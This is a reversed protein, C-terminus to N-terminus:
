SQLTYRTNSQHSHEFTNCPNISFTIIMTGYCGTRANTHKKYRRQELRCSLHLQLMCYFVSYVDSTFLDLAALALRLQFLQLLLCKHAMVGDIIVSDRLFIQLIFTFMASNQRMLTKFSQLVASCADSISVTCVKHDYRQKMRSIGINIALFQNFCSRSTSLDGGNRSM